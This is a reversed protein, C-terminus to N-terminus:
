APNKWEMFDWITAQETLLQRLEWNVIQSPGNAFSNGCGGCPGKGTEMDTDKRDTIRTGPPPNSGGVKANHASHAVM